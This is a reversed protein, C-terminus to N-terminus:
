PPHISSISGRGLRKKAKDKKTGMSEIERGGGGGVWYGPGNKRPKTGTMWAWTPSALGSSFLCIVFTGLAFHIYILICLSRSVWQNSVCQELPTM